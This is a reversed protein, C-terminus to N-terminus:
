TYIKYIWFIKQIELIGEDYIEKVSKETATM